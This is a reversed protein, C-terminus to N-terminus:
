VKLTVVVDSPSTSQGSVTLVPGFHFHENWSLECTGQLLFLNVTCKRNLVHNWHPWGTTPRWNNNSLALPAPSSGWVVPTASRYLLGWPSAACKLGPIILAFCLGGEHYVWTVTEPELVGRNKIKLNRHQSDAPPEQPSAKQMWFTCRYINGCCIPQTSAVLAAALYNIHSLSQLKRISQVTLKWSSKIFYQVLHWQDAMATFSHSILFHQKTFLESKQSSCSTPAKAFSDYGLAFM